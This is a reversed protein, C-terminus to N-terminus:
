RTVSQITITFMNSDTNEDVQTSICTVIGPHQLSCVAPPAATPESVALDAAEELSMLEEPESVGVAHSSLAVVVGPSSGNHSASKSAAGNAGNLPVSHMDRSRGSSGNILGGDDHGASAYLTKQGPDYAARSPLSSNTVQLRCTSIPVSITTCCM